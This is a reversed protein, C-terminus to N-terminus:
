ERELLSERLASVVRPELELGDRVYADLSGYREEASDLAAEIYSPAADSMIARVEPAYGARLDTVAGTNATASAMDAERNWAHRTIVYDAVIAEREVGLAALVAAAAVGTRDKGASCHIVCPAGGAALRRIISAFMHTMSHPMKAYFDHMLRLMGDETRPYDLAMDVLRRKKRPPYTEIVLEPHTWSTPDRTREDDLRLDFITRIGAADLRAHDAETLMSLKNSRFLHGRRVRSGDAALCGGFDRFNSAGELTFEATPPETNNVNM